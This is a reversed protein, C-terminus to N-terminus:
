ASSSRQVGTNEVYRRALFDLAILNFWESLESPPHHGTNPLLCLEANALLRYLGTAVEVPFFRDRDGHIILVPARISRLEEAAPFDESHAHERLGLFADAVDRWQGPGLATHRAQLSQVHEESVVITEPTHQGWWSRLEDSFYYTAGSLICVGALTTAELALSLLLMAGTSQGCFAVRELGLAGCLAIIDRAFQRHNMAVIGSPNDTRGHGRLDPVLVRYRPSFAAVQATWSAGSGTFGHLLVLPPGDPTGHEEYYMRMGDIMIYAM